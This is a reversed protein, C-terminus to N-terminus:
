VRFDILDNRIPYVGLKLLVSSVVLIVSWVAHDLQIEAFLYKNTDIQIVTYLVRHHCPLQSGPLIQHGGPHHLYKILLHLLFEVVYM